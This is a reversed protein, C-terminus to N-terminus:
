SHKCPGRARSAPRGSPVVGRVHLRDRRRVPALATAGADPTSGGARPREERDRRATRLPTRCGEPWMWGGESKRTSAKHETAESLCWHLLEKNRYIDRHKREKEDLSRWILGRLPESEVTPFTTLVRGPCRGQGRALRARQPCQPRQLRPLRRSTMSSCGRSGTHGMDEHGWAPTVVHPHVMGPGSLPAKLFRVRSTSCSSAEGGHSFRTGPVRSPCPAERAGTGGEGAGPPAAPTTGPEGPGSM